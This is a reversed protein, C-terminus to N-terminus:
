TIEQGMLNFSLTALTAYVRVVDTAALAFGTLDVVENAGIPVDYAHYHENAISAGAPSVAVRFATPTGTRNAVRLVSGVVKTAGPVTYITTLTAAAPNQQGLTKLATAM